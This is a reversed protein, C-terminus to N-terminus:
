RPGPTRVLRALSEGAPGAADGRLYQTIRQEMQRPFAPVPGVLGEAYVNLLIERFVPLALRGGTEGSGLSRNDDFGIRVAVTIGDV